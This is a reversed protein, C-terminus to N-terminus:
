ANLAALALRWQARAALGLKQAKTTTARRTFVDYGNRRISSHIARYVELAAMVGWRGAALRLVGEAADRYYDETRAMEFELLAVFAESIRGERLDDESVGFQGMDEVPLYVRGIRYDQGVDRWFNSLQMAISLSDAHPLTEQVTFPPRVGVIYTMARGVPLASGDMYHLLDGFTPFRTVTLDEKMSRFYPQMVEPPISFRLATDLYARMVPNDSRGADFANWYAREWDEIANLPSSFGQFSVDVRDDGVRMLAYLAEVHPLIRQPLFRSAFSYNKSAALMVRRCEAYDEQTAIPRAVQTM